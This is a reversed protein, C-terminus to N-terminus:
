EAFGTPRSEQDCGAGAVIELEESGAHLDGPDVDARLHDLARPPLRCAVGTSDIKGHLIHL